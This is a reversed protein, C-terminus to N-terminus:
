LNRLKQFCTFLVSREDIRLVAEGGIKERGEELLTDLVVKGTEGVGEFRLEVRVGATRLRAAARLLEGRVRGLFM